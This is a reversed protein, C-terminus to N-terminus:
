YSLSEAIKIIERMANLSNEYNTIDETKWTSTPATFQNELVRGTVHAVSEEYENALSEALKAIIRLTFGEDAITEDLSVVFEEAHPSHALAEIVEDINVPVPVTIELEGM